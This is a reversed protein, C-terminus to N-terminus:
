NSDLSRAAAAAETFDPAHGWVTADVAREYGHQLAHYADAGPRFAPSHGYGSAPRPAPARMQAAAPQWWEAVQSRTEHAHDHHQAVAWLDYVDRARDALGSLDGAAARRHLADLKNVATWAPRVCPIEFGGLEPHESLLREDCHM